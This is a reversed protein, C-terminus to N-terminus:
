QLFIPLIVLHTDRKPKKPSEEELDLNPQATRQTTAHGPGSTAPEARGAVTQPLRVPAASPTCSDPTARALFEVLSRSTYPQVRGTLGKATPPPRTLDPKASENPEKKRGLDFICTFCRSCAKVSKAPGFQFTRRGRTVERVNTQHGPKKVYFL